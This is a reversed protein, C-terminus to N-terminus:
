GGAMVGCTGDCQGLGPTPPPPPPPPLNVCTNRYWETTGDWSTGAPCDVYYAYYEPNGSNHPPNFSYGCGNYDGPRGYECIFTQRHIINGAHDNGAVIWDSGTCADPIAQDNPHAALVANLDSQCAAQAAAPTDYDPPTEAEVLGSVLALM